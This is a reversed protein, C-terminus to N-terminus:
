PLAAAIRRLIARSDDISIPTPDEGHRGLQAHLALIKTLDAQTAARIQVEETM